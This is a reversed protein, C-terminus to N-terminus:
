NRERIAAVLEANNMKSHGKIDLERARNYLEDRSRRQKTRALGVNKKM